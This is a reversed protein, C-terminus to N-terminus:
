TRVDVEKARMQRSSVGVSVYQDYLVPHDIKFLEDNFKIRGKREKYSLEYAHVGDTAYAKTTDAMMMSIPILAKEKEAKLVKVQAELATVQKSVAIYKKVADFDNGKITLEPSKIDGYGNYNILTKIVNEPKGLPAPPIHALVNNVWFNEEAKIQRMEEDLDRVYDRIIIKDRSLACILRSKWVGMIHQCQILQRKYHQPISNNAYADEGFESTTKFELHIWSGDSLQMMRDLNATLFPRKPDAYINTDVVINSRPWKQRAVFDIYEEMLHGYLFFRERAEKDDKDDEVVRPMGIKEYYLDLNTTNPYPSEGFVHSAASSGISQSRMNQWESDSLTSADVIIQPGAYNLPDLYAIAEPSAKAMVEAKIREMAPSSIAHYAINQGHGTAAKNTGDFSM